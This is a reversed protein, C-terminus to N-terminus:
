KQASLKIMLSQHLTIKMKLIETGKLSTACLTNIYKPIGKIAPKTLLYKKIFCLPLSQYVLFNTGSSFFRGFSYKNLGHSAGSCISVL